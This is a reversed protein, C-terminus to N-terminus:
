GSGNPNDGQKDTASKNARRLQDMTESLEAVVRKESNGSKGAFAGDESDGGDDGKADPGPAQRGPPEVNVTDSSLEIIEALQSVQDALNVLHTEIAETLQKTIKETVQEGVKAAVAEAVDAKFRDVAEAADPEDAPAAAATAALQRMRALAEPNAPVAVASIELLEVETHVWVRKTKGGPSASDRWEGNSSMFGVSFARMHRDRYLAAYERGLQTDAFKMHFVLAEGAPEIKVASGIVPSNGTTLRHQHAALIVPNRRYADLGKGWAGPEIIEGQRDEDGTSAVAELIGDDSFGKVQAFIFSLDTQNATQTQTQSM